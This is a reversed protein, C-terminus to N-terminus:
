ISVVNNYKQFGFRSTSYENSDCFQVRPPKAMELGHNKMESIVMCQEM